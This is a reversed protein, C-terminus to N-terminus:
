GVTVDISHHGRAGDPPPRTVRDTQVEGMGDTARVSLRHDGATADWRYLWQVWTADSIPTSLEASRWEGGDVQVEVAAIGRDPAWAV